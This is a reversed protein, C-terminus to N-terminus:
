ISGSPRNGVMGPMVMDMLVVNPQVRKCLCVAEEGSDAEGVLELDNIVRLLTAFGSRVMEHDDVILVRIRERTITEATVADSL